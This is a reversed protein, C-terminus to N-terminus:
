CHAFRLGLRFAFIIRTAVRVEWLHLPLILHLLPTLMREQGTVGM